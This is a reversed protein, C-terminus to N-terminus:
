IDEVIFAVGNALGRTFWGYLKKWKNYAGTSYGGDFNGAYYYRSGDYKAMIYCYEAMKTFNAGYWKRWKSRGRIIFVNIYEDGIMIVTRPHYSDLFSRSLDKYDYNVEGNLVIAPSFGMFSDFKHSDKGISVRGNDDIRLGDDDYYGVGLKVGNKKLYALDTMSRTDFLTGNIVVTHHPKLMQKLTQRHVDIVEAKTDQIRMRIVTTQRDIDFEQYRCRRSNNMSARSKPGFKGDPKLGQNRQYWRVCRRTAKGYSGDDIIYFGQKCLFRQLEVVDKGKSGYKLNRNIM